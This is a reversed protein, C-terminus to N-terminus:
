IIQIRTKVLAESFYALFNVPSYLRTAMFSLPDMGACVVIRPVDPFRELVDRAKELKQPTSAPTLNTLVILSPSGLNRDREVLPNNFGSYLPYWEVRPEPCVRIHEQVLYAAFYKAKVDDPNGSVCYISPRLPDEIYAELSKRQVSPEIIRENLRQSEVGFPMPDFRFSSIRFVHGPVCERVLPSLKVDIKHKKIPTADEMDDRKSAKRTPHTYMSTDDEVVYSPKEYAPRAELRRLLLKDKKAM